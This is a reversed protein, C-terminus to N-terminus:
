TLVDISISASMGRWISLDLNSSDLDKVYKGLYTNVLNVVVSEFVM